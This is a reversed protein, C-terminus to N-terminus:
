GLERLSCRDVWSLECCLKTLCDLGHRRSKLREDACPEDRFMPARWGGGSTGVHDGLVSSVVERKGFLWPFDHLMRCFPQVSLLGPASAARRRGRAQEREDVGALGIFNLRHVGVERGGFLVITVGEPPGQDEQHGSPQSLLNAVLRRESWM